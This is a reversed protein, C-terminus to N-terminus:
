EGRILRRGLLRNLQEAYPIARRAVYSPALLSGIVLSKHPIVAQCERCAPYEEAARGVLHARRLARMEAGNWISAMSAESIQGVPEGRWSHCCPFVSGDYRIMLPGLWPFHCPSRFARGGFRAEEVREVNVEDAKIRLADVGEVRRWQRRFLSEEGRNEPLSVMQIIVWTTAQLRRKERLFAMIGARTREFDGGRRIKAYSQATAADLSVILTDLGALLLDRSIRGNLLTANTALETRRGSEHVAGILWALDPHLLPEGGAFPLVLECAPALAGLAQELEARSMDVNKWEPGALQRACMPCSLNCRSTTEIYAATPV